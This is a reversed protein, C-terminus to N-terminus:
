SLTGGTCTSTTSTGWMGLGLSAGLLGLAFSTHVLGRRWFMRRHKEANARSVSM